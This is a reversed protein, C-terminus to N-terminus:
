REFARHAVACEALRDARPTVGLGPGTPVALRGDDVLDLPETLDDAFYQHSPGLDTPLTCAPQAAVALATARGVGTELMGGVFAALGLEACRGLLAVSEALGGVRGPKLNVAGTFGADVLAALEDHGGISEDLAIPTRWRRGLEIAATGSAVPQEVYALGLEDLGALQAAHDPDAPDFSGNADAALPVEPFASRVAGLPALAGGPAIKLKVLAPHDALRRGVAAVTAAPEARAGVVVAREVSARAPGLEAALPRGARRLELDWLAVEVATWAMPLAGVEVAEGALVAPVLEGVLVSWAGDTWEATYTPRSLAVCEGWGDSGGEGRARVLVVDRATETGHAAVFPELLPLRVRYVDLGTLPGPLTPHVTRLRM